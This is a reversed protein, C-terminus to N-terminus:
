RPDFAIEVLLPGLEHVAIDRKEAAASGMGWIAYDTRRDAVGLKAFLKPLSPLHDGFICALAPRELKAMADAVVGLMRDSNRLHALYTALEWSGLAPATPAAGGMARRRRADWPGHNEITVAFLFTPQDARAILQMIREGLALDAVYEGVRPAEVFADAALFEEFGLLPVVRDRRAFKPDFPHVCITRYGQARLRAPLTSRCISALRLYPHFVDIGLTAAPRGALFAFESRITNAGWAPVELRGHAASRARLADFNPMLRRDIARHLRRADFFSEAQLAVIHPLRDPAGHAAILAPFELPPRPPATLLAWHAFLAGGVGFRGIDDLPDRGHPADLAGRLAAAVPGRALIAALIAPTAAGFLSVMWSFPTDRVFLPSRVALWVAVAGAALVVLIAVRARGVHDIYLRPHRWVEPALVFDALVLPEGIAAQKVRSIALLAAHGAITIAAALFPRLTLAVFAIWFASAGAAALAVGLWTKVRRDGAGAAFRDLAFITALAAALAASARLGLDPDM